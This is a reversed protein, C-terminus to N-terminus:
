KMKLPSGRLKQALQNKDSVINLIDYSFVYKQVKKLCGVDGDM